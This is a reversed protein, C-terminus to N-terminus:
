TGRIHRHVCAGGTSAWVTHLPCRHVCLCLQSLSRPKRHGLGQGLRRFMEELRYPNIDRGWM